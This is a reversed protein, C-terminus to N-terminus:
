PTRRHLIIRRMQMHQSAIPVSHSLFFPSPLCVQGIDIAPNLSHGADLAVDVRRTRVEGTLVDLEVESVAAGYGNYVLADHATAQEHRQSGDYFAYATLPVQAWGGAEHARGSQVKARSSAGSRICRGKPTGMSGCRCVRGHDLGAKPGVVGDM